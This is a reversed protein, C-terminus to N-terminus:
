HQDRHVPVIKGRDLDLEALADEAMANFRQGIDRPLKGARMAAETSNMFQRILDGAVRSDGLKVQNIAQQIKDLPLREPDPPCLPCIEVAELLSALKDLVSLPLCDQPFEALFIQGQSKFAIRTGDASISTDDAVNPPVTNTLQTIKNTPVDFFFVEYNDDTNGGPIVSSTSQFAIRTGDSNISSFASGNGSLTFTLQSFTNTTADFLFTEFNHDANGGPGPTIDDDSDFSIRAGDNSMAPNMAGNFSSTNTIQALMPTQTNHLFIEFNQDPNGGPKLDSSSSFAILTGAPNIRPELFPNPAGATDTIQTITNANSDFLFVEVNGDANGGNLNRNSEFVIRTGDANIAPSRNSLLGGELTEAIQTLGTNADFLFIEFNGDANNGTLNRDSEFAIRTGNASIAPQLNSGGAPSQTIQTFTKTNTDYLFIESNKDANGGTIDAKSSFAIRTGDSSIVPSQTLSAPPTNTIQTITCFISQAQASGAFAYGL